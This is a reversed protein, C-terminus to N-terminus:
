IDGDTCAPITPITNTESSIGPRTPLRQPGYKPSRRNLERDHFRSAQFKDCSRKIKGCFYMPIVDSSAVVEEKCTKELEDNSIKM